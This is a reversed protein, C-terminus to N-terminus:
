LSYGNATVSVLGGAGPAGSVVSISTSIGSAPICPTFIQEDIGIGSAAPAVWLEHSMTGTIIGTLTDVVTTAATANARVSYGCIYTTHGTVSTLTATTAATTGTASATVPVAGLPYPSLQSVRDSNSGSDYAAQIDKDLQSDWGILGQGGSGLVPAATVVTGTDTIAVAASPATTSGLPATIAGGSGGGGGGGTGSALGSGTQVNVTTTGTTTICTLQTAGNVQFVFWGGNPQLEKYAVTATPGVGCYAPTASGTGVNEALVESAAGSITTSNGGTTVGIPTDVAGTLWGGSITIGSGGSVINVPLGFTPTVVDCSEQTYGASTSYITVCPAIVPAAAAHAPDTSWFISLGSLALAGLAVTASQPM